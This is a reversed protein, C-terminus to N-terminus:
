VAAFLGSKLAEFLNILPSLCVTDAMFLPAFRPWHDAKNWGCWLSIKSALRYGGSGSSMLTLSCLVHEYVCALIINGTAWRSFSAHQQTTPPIASSLRWWWCRVKYSVFLSIFPLSVVSIADKKRWTAVNWNQGKSKECPMGVTVVFKWVIESEGPDYQFAGVLHFVHFLVLPIM